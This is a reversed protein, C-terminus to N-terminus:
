GQKYSRTLMCDDRISQEERNYDSQLLELCAKGMEEQFEEGDEIYFDDGEIWYRKAVKYRPCTAVCHKLIDRAIEEHTSQLEIEITQRDLDFATVRMGTHNYREETLWAHWDNIITETTTKKM